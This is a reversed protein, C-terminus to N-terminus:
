HDTLGHGFGTVDDNSVVFVVTTTEKFFVLLFDGYIM